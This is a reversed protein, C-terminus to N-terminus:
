VNAEEGLEELIGRLEELAAELESMAEQALASPQPLEGTNDSSEDKLWGIDLSNGREAIWERGFRRFRGSEGSDVRKALAEARGWPDDGYATEFEAFHARNLQTRKGFQSMNARLDYVWVEKTNDKDKKGRTFFLVNTKVGQAYFIGTPLRLITHLNCKNMLDRRIDTGVNSEFLVNDPLVVGARGGPKLARYVHQLFCFQKNSTPYTFDTRTPLGGGKKTGFPPNTLILTAPHDKALREGEEGLTDGYRIGGSEPDSDIGHLMLNMLALRHTDQVHEMGYFTKNRYKRQQAETLSDFDNHTRLYHNASIIFGSTGAAPDQIIDDLTPKMVSVMCDILPRPTFYQGAGSKKENANKELLGEYLDGLDERHVSYWDLKDIETVLTALTKPKKIFSTANGYIQQVLPSGHTGLHVLMHKYHELRDTGTRSELNDWRHETPLQGEVGTEKAMKLFLLYTLETVYQHYTVGDDKLVNCLNWLKGVIDSTINSM